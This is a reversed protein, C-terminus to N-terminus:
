LHSAGFGLDRDFEADRSVIEVLGHAQRLLDQIAPRRHEAANLQLCAAV